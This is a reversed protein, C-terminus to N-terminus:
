ELPFLIVYLIMNGIIYLTHRIPNDLIFPPMCILLLLFTITPSDPDWLTGMLIGILMVPIQVMYLFLTSRHSKDGLLLKHAFTAVLFYAFLLIGQSFGNTEKVLINSLINITAVIFGVILFVESAILNRNAVEDKYEYYRKPNLRRLFKRM